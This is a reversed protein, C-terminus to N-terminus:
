LRSYRQNTAEADVLRYPHRRDERLRSRSSSASTACLNRASRGFKHVVLLYAAQQRVLVERDVTRLNPSPRRPSLRDVVISLRSLKTPVITKTITRLYKKSQSSFRHV